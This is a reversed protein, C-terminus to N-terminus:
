IEVDENSVEDNYEVINKAAAAGETKNRTQKNKQMKSRAADYENKNEVSKEADMDCKPRVAVELTSTSSCDYLGMVDDTLVCHGPREEGTVIMDDSDSMEMMVTNNPTKNQIRDNNSRTMENNNKTFTCQM